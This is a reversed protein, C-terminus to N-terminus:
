RSIPLFKSLNPTNKDNKGIECIGTLLVRQNGGELSSPKMSM